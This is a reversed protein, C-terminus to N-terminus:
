NQKNQNIESKVLETIATLVTSTLIFDPMAHMILVSKTNAILELISDTDKILNYMFQKIFSDTPEETDNLFGLIDYHSFNGNDYETFREKPVFFVQNMDYPVDYIESFLEPVFHNTYCKTPFNILKKIEAFPINSPHLQMQYTSDNCNTTECYKKSRFVQYNKWETILDIIRFNNSQHQIMQMVTLNSRYLPSCIYHAMAPKYFSTNYQSEILDILNDANTVMLYSDRPILVPSGNVELYENEKTTQNDLEDITEHALSMSLQYFTKGDLYSTQIDNIRFLFHNRKTVNPDSTGITGVYVNVFDDIQPVLIGPTMVAQIDGDVENGFDEENIQLGVDGQFFLPINNNKAYRYAGQSGVIQVVSDLNGDYTSQDDIKSYFTTPYSIKQSLIHHVNDDLTSNRYTDLLHSGFVNNDTNLIIAM